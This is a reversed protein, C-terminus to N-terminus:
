SIKNEIKKLFRKYYSKDIYNTEICNLNNKKNRNNLRRDYLTSNNKLENDNLNNNSNNRFHYSTKMMPLTSNKNKKKLM